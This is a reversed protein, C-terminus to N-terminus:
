AAEEGTKDAGAKPTVSATTDKSNVYEVIVKNMADGSIDVESKPKGYAYAMFLEQKRIDKSTAWDLLIMEARTLTITEGQANHGSAAVHAISKALERLMDFNKPRGKRNIRGDGKKFQGKKYQKEVTNVPEDTM